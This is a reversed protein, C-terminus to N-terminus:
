EKVWFNLFLLLSPLAVCRKIVIGLHPLHEHSILSQFIQCQAPSRPTSYASRRRWTLSLMGTKDPLLMNTTIPSKNKKFFVTTTNQIISFGWTAPKYGTVASLLWFRLTGTLIINRDVSCLLHLILICLLGITTPFCMAHKKNLDIYGVTHIYLQM